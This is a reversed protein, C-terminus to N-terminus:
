LRLPLPRSLGDSHSGWGAAAQSRGLLGLRLVTSGFDHDHRQVGFALVQKRFRAKVRM